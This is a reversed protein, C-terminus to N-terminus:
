LQILNMVTIAVFDYGSDNKPLVTDGISVRLRKVVKGASVFDNRTNDKYM